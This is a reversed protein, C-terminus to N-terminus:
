KVDEASPGLHGYWDAAALWYLDEVGESEQLKDCGFHPGKGVCAMQPGYEGEFRESYAGYSVQWAGKLASRLGMDAMQLLAVSDACTAQSVHGTKEM